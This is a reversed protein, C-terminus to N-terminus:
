LFQNVCNFNDAQRVSCPKKVVSFVSFVSLVSFKIYPRAKARGCVGVTFRDDEM